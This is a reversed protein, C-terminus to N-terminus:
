KLAAQVALYPPKAKYNEDLMCGASGGADPCFADSFGEFHLAKCQPGAGVCARAVADYVDKLAAAAGDASALPPSSASLSADLSLWVPFGAAGFAGITAKLAAADTCEQPTTSGGVACQLKLLVGDISAGASKAATLMTLVANAKSSRATEAYLLAPRQAAAAQALSKQAAGFGALLLQQNGASGAFAHGWVNQGAARPTGDDALLDSVVVAAAFPLPDYDNFMIHQGSLVEM